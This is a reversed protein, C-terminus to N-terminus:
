NSSEFNGYFHACLIYPFIRSFSTLVFVIRFSIFSQRARSHSASLENESHVPHAPSVGSLVLHWCVKPSMVCDEECTPNIGNNRNCLRGCVINDNRYKPFRQIFKIDIKYLATPEILLGLIFNIPRQPRRLYSRVLAYIQNVAM